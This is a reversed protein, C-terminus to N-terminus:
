WLTIFNNGGVHCRWGRIFAKVMTGEIFYSIKIAPTSWYVLVFGYSSAEKSRHVRHLGALSISSMLAATGSNSSIIAATDSGSNTDTPQSTTGTTQVSKGRRYTSGRGH